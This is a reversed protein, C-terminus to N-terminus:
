ETEIFIGREQTWDVKFGLANGLDRLKYYTYGGGNNDTLTFAELNTLTGDINVKQVTPLCERAGSFPTSNESGNPTYAWGTAINVAGYYGVEFQAASGNLADAVDRLKVYNTLNGAADKLAYCQFEMSKGDVDVTQTAPHATDPTVARYYQWGSVYSHMKICGESVKMDNESDDMWSRPNSRRLESCPLVERGARDVLGLGYVESDSVVAFGEHFDYAYDYRLPVVVKGTKDIFGWKEEWQGYQDKKGTSIAVAALGEHFDSGSTYSGSIVVKGTKDIFFCSNLDRGVCALGESFKGMWAYQCPIVERGMTDIFGWKYHNYGDEQQGKEKDKVAVAAMGDHFGTIWDYKGFLMEEGNRSVYGCETVETSGDKYNTAVSWGEHFGELSSYKCPVVVQGTKDIAGTHGIYPSNSDVVVARGESFSKIWKYKGFPVVVNGAKDIVGDIREEKGDAMEQQKSVAALGESFPEVTYYEVPIVIEGQRNIYGWQYLWWEDPAPHFAVAALGEHFSEARDYPGLVEEGAKDFFVYERGVRALAFGESYHYAEEQGAYSCIEIVEAAQDAASAAPLMAYVLVAALLLCLARKKM